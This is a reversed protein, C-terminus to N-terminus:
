RGDRAARTRLPSSWCTLRGKPTMRAASVTWNDSSECAGRAHPGRHHRAARLPDRPGPEAHDAAPRATALSGRAAITSNLVEYDYIQEGREAPRTRPRGAARAARRGDQSWSRARLGPMGRDARHFVLVTPREMKSTGTSTARNTGSARASARTWDDDTWTRGSSTASDILNDRFETSRAMSALRLTRKLSSRPTTRLGAM